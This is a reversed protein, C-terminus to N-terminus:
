CHYYVKNGRSDRYYPCHSGPYVLVEFFYNAKEYYQEKKDFLRVDKKFEAEEAGFLIVKGDKVVIILDNVEEAGLRKRTADDISRIVLEPQDKMIPYVDREAANGNTHSCATLALMTVVVIVTKRM